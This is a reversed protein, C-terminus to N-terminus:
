NFAKKQTTRLLEKTNLLFNGFCNFARSCSHVPSLSYHVGMNKDKTNEEPNLAKLKKLYLEKMKRNRHPHFSPSLLFTKTVQAAM